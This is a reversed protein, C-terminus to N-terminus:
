EHWEGGQLILKVDYNRAIRLVTEFAVTGRGRELESILRTSYGMLVAADEQTWGMEKRRRRLIKGVEKADWVDTPPLPEVERERALRQLERFTKM